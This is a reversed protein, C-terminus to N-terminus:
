HKCWFLSARRVDAHYRHQFKGRRANKNPAAAAVSTNHSDAPTRVYVPVFCVVKTCSAKAAAGSSSSAVLRNDKGGAAAAGGAAVAHAAAPVASKSGRTMAPSSRSGGETAGEWESSSGGSGSSRSSPTRCRKKGGAGKKSKGGAGAEAAELGASSGSSSSSAAPSRKIGGTGKKSKGGAGAEEAEFGAPRWNYRNVYKELVLFSSLPELGEVSKDLAAKLGSTKPRVISLSASGASAGGVKRLRDFIATCNERTVKVKCSLLSGKDTFGKGWPRNKSGAELVFHCWIEKDRPRERSVTAMKLSM